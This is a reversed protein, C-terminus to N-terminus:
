AEKRCTFESIIPVDHPCTMDHPRFQNNAVEAYRVRKVGVKFLMFDM